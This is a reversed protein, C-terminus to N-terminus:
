LISLTTTKTKWKHSNIKMYAKFLHVKATTEAYYLSHSRYYISDCSAFMGPNSFSLSRVLIKTWDNNTVVNPILLNM